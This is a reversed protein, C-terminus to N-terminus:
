GEYDQEKRRMLGVLILGLGALVMLILIFKKLYKM